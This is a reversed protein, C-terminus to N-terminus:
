QIVGISDAMERWFRAKAEHILEQKHLLYSIDSLFIHRSVHLNLLGFIPMNGPM